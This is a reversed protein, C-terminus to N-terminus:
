LNIGAVAYECADCRAIADHGFLDPYVPSRAVVKMQSWEGNNSAIGIVTHWARSRHSRHEIISQSLGGGSRTRDSAFVSYQLRADRSSVAGTRDERTGDGGVM